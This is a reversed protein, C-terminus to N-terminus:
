DSIDLLWNIRAASEIVLQHGILAMLRTCARSSSQRAETPADLETMYCDDRLARPLEARKSAVPTSNM